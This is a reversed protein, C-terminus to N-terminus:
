MQRDEIHITLGKQVFVRLKVRMPITMLYDVQSEHQREKSIKM